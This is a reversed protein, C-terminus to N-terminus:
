CINAGTEASTLVLGEPTLSWKLLHFLSVNSLGMFCMILRSSFPRALATRLNRTSPLRLSCLYVSVSSRAPPFPLYTGTHSLHSRLETYFLKFSPLGDIWLQTAQDIFRHLYMCWGSALTCNRAPHPTAPEIWVITSPKKKAPRFALTSYVLKLKRVVSKKNM